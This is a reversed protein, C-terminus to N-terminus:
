RTGLADTLVVPSLTHSAVERGDVLTVPVVDSYEARWEPDADPADLDVAAWEEGAQACVERVVDEMRVCTPCNARVLVTVRVRRGGDGEGDRGVDPTAM